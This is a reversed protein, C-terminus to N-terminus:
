VSKESRKRWANRGEGTEREREKNGLEKEREERM